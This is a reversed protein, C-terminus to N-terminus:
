SDLKMSFNVELGLEQMAMLCVCINHCIIKCLVENKMAIETKSRVHGGFKRKIMSFTSEVNSRKHYHAMFEDEHFKFLHYMKAWLHSKNNRGYANNQGLGTHGKKFCIYPVAGHKDIAALNAYSGYIKDASVEKIDFNLATKDVLSPLMSIDSTHKGRIEVATVVHTAVGCMLHVKVWDHEQKQGYKHDYWRSYNSTTFGSSDAAFDEEIGVLPLSTQELIHELIPTIAPNQLVKYICNFHPVSKIYDKLQAEALDSMFRRASVTSYIKFCVAFLADGLPFRPRGRTQTVPDQVNACLDNLLKLFQQKESVQASNYAQWNQGYTPRKVTEQIGAHMINVWYYMGLQYISNFYM